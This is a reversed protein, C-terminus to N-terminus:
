LSLLAGPTPTNDVLLERSRRQVASREASEGHMSYCNKNQDSKQGDSSACATRRHRDPVSGARLNLVNTDLASAECLLDSIKRGACRFGDAHLRTPLRADRRLKRRGSDGMRRRLDAVDLRIRGIRHREYYPRIESDAFGRSSSGFLGNCRTHDGSPCRTSNRPRSPPAWVASRCPTRCVATPHHKAPIRMPHVIDDM